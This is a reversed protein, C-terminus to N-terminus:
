EAYMFVVWALVTSINRGESSNEYYNPLDQYTLQRTVGPPRRRPQASSASTGRGGRATRPVFVKRRCVTSAFRSLRASGSCAGNTMNAQSSQVGLGCRHPCADDMASCLRWRRGLDHGSGHVSYTTSDHARASTPPGLCVLWYAAPGRDASTRREGPQSAQRNPGVTILVPDWAHIVRALTRTTHLSICFSSAAGYADCHVTSPWPGHGM